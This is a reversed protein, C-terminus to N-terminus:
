FGLDTILSRITKTEKLLHATDASECDSAEILASEAEEFTRSARELADLALRKQELATAVKGDTIRNPQRWGLRIACNQIDMLFAKADQYSGTKCARRLFEVVPGDLHKDRGWFDIDKTTEKAAENRIRQASTTGPSLPLRGSEWDLGVFATYVLTRAAIVVDLSFAHDPDVGITRQLLPDNVRFSANWDILLLGRGNWYAHAPKGDYYIIGQSHIQVLLEALQLAFDVAEIMPLPSGGEARGVRNHLCHNADYCKLALYPRWRKQVAEQGFAAFAKPDANDVRLVKYTNHKGSSECVYGLDFLEPVRPDGRLAALLDAERYFATYWDSRERDPKDLHRARLVKLAVPRSGALDAAKHVRAFGGEPRDIPSIIEYFEGIRDGHILDDPM